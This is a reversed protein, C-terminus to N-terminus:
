NIMVNLSRMIFLPRNLFEGLSEDRQINTENLDHYEVKSKTQEAIGINLIEWDEAIGKCIFDILEAKTGHEFMPLNEDGKWNFGLQFILIRSRHSMYSLSKLIENKAEERSLALNGYDDGIHHLVNLLFCVDVQHNFNDKFNIYEIFVKVVKDVNLVCAAESVFESHADNGEFYLVTSAGQVACELTFFGTNGGIDAIMKEKVTYRSLIYDLREIEYRSIINLRDQKIFPQLPRALVQYNSHKSTRNYLETLKLQSM